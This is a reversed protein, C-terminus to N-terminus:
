CSKSTETVDSVRKGLGSLFISLWGFVLGLFNAGTIWLMAFLLNSIYDTQVPFAHAYYGAFMCSYANFSALSCNLAEIKLTLMLLFVTLFVASIMALLPSFSLSIGDILAIAAVALVSGALMPFIARRIVSVTAGLTFYWAWGIFLAWIPLGILVGFCSLAALVAVSVDLANIKDM